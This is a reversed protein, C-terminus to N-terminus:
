LSCEFFYFNHTKFVLEVKSYYKLLRTKWSIEGEQIIHLEYGLQIDSHNAIGILGRDSMSSLSKICEDVEEHPIHELVDCCILGDFKINKKAFDIINNCEHPLGILYKNCCVNSLEIGYADYGEELIRRLNWGQGCGADLIKKGELKELFQVIINYKYDVNCNYYLNNEYISNYIHQQNM